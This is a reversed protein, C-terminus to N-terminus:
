RQAASCHLYRRCNSREDRAALYCASQSRPKHGTTYRSYLQLSSKFFSTLKIIKLTKKTRSAPHALFRVPTHLKTIRITVRSIFNDGVHYQTQRNNVQPDITTLAQCHPTQFSCKLHPLASIEANHVFESPVQTGLTLRDHDMTRASRRGLHLGLGTERASHSFAQQNRSTAKVENNGQDALRWGQDL